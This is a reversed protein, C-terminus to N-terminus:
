KFLSFALRKFKDNKVIQFTLLPIQSKMMQDFVSHAVSSHTQVHPIQLAKLHIESFRQVQLFNGVSLFSSSNEVIKM